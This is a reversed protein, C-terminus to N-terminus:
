RPDPGGEEVRSEEGQHERPPPRMPPPPPTINASAASTEGTGSTPAPAPDSAASAATSPPPPPPPAGFGRRGAVLRGGPPPPSPAIRSDSLPSPPPPPPRYGVPPPSPSPGLAAPPPPPSGAPPPPASGAPPPPASGAPPPPRYGAPPPPPPGGPRPPPVPAPPPAQSPRGLPIYARMIEDPMGSNNVRLIVGAVFALASGALIVIATALLGSGTSSSSSSSPYTGPYSTYGSGMGDLASAFGAVCGTLLGGLVGLISLTVLVTGVSRRSSVRREAEILRQQSLRGWGPGAANVDAVLRALYGDLDATAASVSRPAALHQLFRQRAVEWASADDVPEVFLEEGEDVLEQVEARAVNAAVVRAREEIQRRIRSLETDDATLGLWSDLQERARRYRVGAESASMTGKTPDITDLQRLLDRGTARRSEIVAARERSREREAAAAQEAAERAVAVRRAEDEEVRRVVGDIVSRTLSSLGSAEQLPALESSSLRALDLSGALVPLSETWADLERLDDVRRRASRAALDEISRELDRWAPDDGWRGRPPQVPLPLIPRGCHTSGVTAADNLDAATPEADTAKLVVVVDEDFVGVLEGLLSWDEAQPGPPLGLVLIAAGARALWWDKEGLTSIAGTGPTDVLRVGHPLRFDGSISVRDPRAPWASLEGRRAVLDAPLEFVSGGREASAAPTGTEAELLVATTPLAGVESVPQGVLDNLLKSKGRSFQGVLAVGPTPPTCREVLSAIRRPVALGVVELAALDARTIM